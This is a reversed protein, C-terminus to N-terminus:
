VALVFKNARVVGEVSVEGVTTKRRVKLNQVVLAWVAEFLEHLVGADSELENRRVQVAGICRFAGDRGISVVQNRADATAVGGEQQM